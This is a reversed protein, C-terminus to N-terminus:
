IIRTSRSSNLQQHTTSKLNPDQTTLITSSDNSTNLSTILNVISIPPNLRLEPKVWTMALYHPASYIFNFLMLGITAIASLLIIQFRYRKWFVHCFYRIPSRLWMLSTYIRSDTHLLSPMILAPPPPPQLTPYQNPESQGRGAPKISAEKESLIELTMKVKGSLRWKGGDSAQCPWWGTVTRKTFLSFHKHRLFHRWKPDAEMMKITCQKAHRAPLPMDSLDLELVGIFDDPSFVDNDWVQIILRAPFKMSTPDLSWIYDKQSQVCVREAALYDMTFIFRWNFYAEGTVSHYHIDTKQVDKELGYLWGKIYIDSTKEKSLTDRMLDVNATKWIVCRLEYRKPKRPSINVPPGPPGLKTPFIDVWMQVKGQDIGPQSDSYLTRTEVHEPVLRQTNLIYLALREKKSGLGHINPTKPEFSKLRFTRGNYFVSDEDANFVPPPLGKRKAYRDLLYSPPMQDRWKFPGSQCYSKSLGCRAGFGSLLRNELDIVTTGIKDDPSLLDFDYLQVELDKELPINCTLEFLMGFVPDVTNPQYVDRNGLTMQGLKLVVYPDCLGNYDQPQLNIARVVYVRVLCSQPFDERDPWVSFQRPPKAADPNEPFPYIRFLGKFEGVVPSDLRPQEQYLKFTQCFDQLGQFAPVAELECDYVKITHYDRYKYKLSKHEDGTAWFLKSWWDVEHEYEEETKTSKYWFKEYFYGLFPLAMGPPRPVVYHQAWPDCFYPQLFDVRAQGVVTRRGFYWNDEVKLVLPLAYAEETPMFVTFFLTPEPFNPNTQFDRIPETRLTEEGCEVLLQPSSAVKMNRLGWALVEIATKRLTPQISKPLTCIGNKWPVSLIPMHKERLKETELILECSALIEGEEEGLERVLPHWRMPRLSRDQLDLWVLPPWMSRGWLSEKGWSDQQWLELVVLPPSARTDEPNEYLLLHQFILTQAWTPAASSGLMQTRQSHNLFVVRIFPGQFAPSQSSTLDRAQYIYCFLQYYHPKDFTYYIFPMPPPRTDEPARKWSEGISRRWSKSDEEKKTQQKLDMALSGELLFIPAVGKDKNPALRRHWCRRRFRSQPQPDLHFKSGFTGYEWGEEKALDPGQLQLFSLTEQEKSLETHNRFRVRVWRRRRCSHYTKEVSSWVHPLGSPPIGVGYEWGESDVAHNLEAIWNKKFHWGQPCKVNERAEVPEGNVDTNPTAAPVWAGAANRVQNEYVEELVQSKNIDTDLLLRRQPEVRWSDQWHWGVPVKFDTKPVSKQGTVDSFNPCRYLGQQGWQDKYKAQNEYTEAYVVMTGKRLLQLEKSDTVNGLWMCVRLHAPLTDPQGEGEPYQLLLSQIKGCFRGSHLPGAPSFLITHAPVRAYAVREEKAMLWIMVDPLSMQPEPLVANLRHLWGEVTAVMDRPKAEKAKQALEVLLLSRLHWRKRDLDTAKPQDTMCPLPRKCDEVLERLLKQWQHLLAPDRPNRMSKLTDLNAKLRDRTFHLLNLCNMRFSVDEWNSTVAVVPKTNYWPVYHYIDGDHIVPSYQTTSVLPKYGLDTKNGYHGISVEFQILDKFNPMMTCSLFVVCLGYKQRNQHKEIRTVEQSLDKMRSDQHSKVQTILELFVRGRYALGDRVSDPICTGDQIRFPAKKGGHLTLFSPGFCPLFGSFMRQKGELEEGTSSIQNLYLSATGIEDQCNKASCDLVRFRIYSSLCPLQIQFTLIQNWIPNETKTQVNTKLKEGILEVELMPNVSLNKKLLLDEACYIFFQLYAAHIPAAASKFIRISTDDAGYPLKQDVLAQDGVGLACITVKLYGTVGSGPKHPNCLGLWKRLLTHGPSHYIYGIDTQISIVEDFFKAPVEHFNQFFTENFFPNNGMKLRTHQEQGGITVKVVPQINNGMLQRAEFVKVRVQFHQPKSSLARQEPSSPVLLKQRAAERMTLGLLDEDGTKEIDKKTMLAVQLTVTCDTSTMSHNLLTLDKVFLVESPQKVLPKLPITALGIFTNGGGGGMAISDVSLSFFLATIPLYM